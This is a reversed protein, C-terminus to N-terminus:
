SSPQAASLVAIGEPRILNAGYVYLGKVADAFRKEPRYAEMKLIQEAFTIAGPYGAIIKENDFTATGDGVVKPVNNSKLIRFGAAEGIQGNARTADGGTTYTVFRNDKLMLGHFWPPVVVWRGESPVNANDLKVGLDVLAEYAESANAFSIPSADSGITNNADVATYFSAVYQDAVDRLGYGAREMAQDMFKPKAQAMDVDDVQFNFYKQQDITLTKQNSGMEDPGVIDTNTTYDRITVEGVQNIYVTDGFQQIEGEYDRNVVGDQAYVLAKNLHALLRSSWVKPIFNTVAM